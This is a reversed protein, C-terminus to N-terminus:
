LQGDDVININDEGAHYHWRYSSYDFVTVSMDGNGENLFHLM